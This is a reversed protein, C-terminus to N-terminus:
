WVSHTVRRRDTVQRLLPRVCVHKGVAYGHLVEAPIVSLVLRVATAALVTM